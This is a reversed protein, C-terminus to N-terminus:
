SDDPTAGADREARLADLERQLAPLRESIERLEPSERLHAAGEPDTILTKLTEQDAAVRAELAVIREDLSSAGPAPAEADVRPLDTAVPESAAPQSAAPEGAVPQSAAPEGAVPESAAPEFTAAPIAGANEAASSGPAVERRSDRRAAPVRDPYATYRANGDADTWQYLTRSPAPGTCSCLLAATLAVAATRACHRQDEM